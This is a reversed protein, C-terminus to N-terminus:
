DRVPMGIPHVGIGLEHGLASAMRALLDLDVHPATGSEIRRLQTHSIGVM